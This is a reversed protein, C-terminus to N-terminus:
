RSGEAARTESAQHDALRLIAEMRALEWAGYRARLREYLAPWDLGHWDFAPSQPGVDPAHEGPDEHPFLPRGRGHHTGILWLVLDADAADAVRPDVRVLRVSCAEHRWHDPLAAAVRAAPPLFRGSKALVHDPDPGFPDGYHLWAQFRPDAKGADHLRGALKLDAIRSGPLGAVSAFVEAMQEVDHGHVDLRVPVGTMSGSGDDETANAEGESDPQGVEIGFPAVFVVGRPRDDDSGYVDTEVIVRRKVAADLSRLDQRVGDPLDLGLLAARMDRWPRSASTALAEALAQDRAPYDLLGPAVRVAFRRGAYPEAANRAIDTVPQRSRPHWGFRDVGGYKAPVVISDGPRLEPPRVWRSREDDGAWRFAWRGDPADASAEDEARAAVDALRDVSTESDTLWRRVTWLPLEIAESARPPVLLLLRRASEDDRYTDPDLDARWVVTISDPQRDPGHLYLSVEPSAAPIPSTQTLLDLHAPLLIPADDRPALTEGPVPRIAMRQGFAQLGFDMEAVAADNGDQNATLYEWAARIARGYVPDEHRPSVDTGFAIVTAYPVIDRAARNLRGFRQRLADLPAAETIVGDFDLDVGAELCQTTVVILPRDLTRTAGDWARTRIPALVTVLEERDLSRAPGIMLIVEGLPRQNIQM